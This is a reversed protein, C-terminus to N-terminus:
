KKDIWVKHYLVSGSTPDIKVNQVEKKVPVVIMSHAIPVWPAEEHILLQAKRYLKDRESQQTVRKAKTLLDNVAENEFFALNQAPIKASEKGLLLYLFNDPDGNDGTWGLMAMSHEGRSTKDLYTGWEYSVLSIKIGVDALNAQIAEAVKRGNPMYPRPIPIAWLKSEFGKSLGAEKLLAKAKAPNYPYDKVADNYSWIVPPMPNKAVKGLGEYMNDVIAKKNIAYNVAQRVKKNDFPKKQTNMALYAINMGEQKIIKLKQNAALQPVDSPNPFELVDLKGAMMELFRSSNDPISKYILRDIKPRGGYYKDFAELEVIQNKVWKKFKFPGSGVPNFNFKEKLRNAATPSVIACFPMALNAIFPTEPFNLFIRVHYKDVKSVKKVIKNMGMALWYQWNASGIKHYPHEPDRQRELSFVVADADVETNDHFFVNKRLYFDYQLGDDSITWKAALDPIIKTTGEEFSVLKSYINEIVKLSEGDTELGPDLGVSDGGRGHILTSKDSKPSPSCSTLLTALCFILCSLLNFHKPINRLVIHKKQM